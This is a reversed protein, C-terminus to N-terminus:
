KVGAKSIRLIRDIVKTYLGALRQSHHFKDPIKSELLDEDCFKKLGVSIPKNVLYQKGGLGWWKYTEDYGHVLDAMTTQYAAVENLVRPVAMKASSADHDLKNTMTTLRDLVRWFAGARIEVYMSIAELAARDENRVRKWTLNDSILPAGRYYREASKFVSKVKSSTDLKLIVYAHAAEHYLAAVQEAEGQEDKGITASQIAQGVIPELTITKTDPNTYNEDGTKIKFRKEVVQLINVPMGAKRATRIFSAISITAM